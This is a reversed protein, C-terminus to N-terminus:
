GRGPEGMPTQFAAMPQLHLRDGNCSLLDRSPTRPAASRRHLARLAQQCSRVRPQVDFAAHRPGKSV